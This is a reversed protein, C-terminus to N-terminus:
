PNGSRFARFLTNLVDFPFSSSSPCVRESMQEGGGLFDELPKTARGTTLLYTLDYIPDGNKELFNLEDM